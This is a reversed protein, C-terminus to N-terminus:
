SDPTHESFEPICVSPQSPVHASRTAPVLGRQPRRHLRHLRRRGAIGVLLAMAEEDAYGTFDRPLYGIRAQVADRPCNVDTGLM